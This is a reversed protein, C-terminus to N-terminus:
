HTRKGGLRLRHSKVARGALRPIIRNAAGRVAANANTTNMNVPIATMGADVIGSTTQGSSSYCWLTIPDGASVTVPVTVSITYHPYVSDTSNNNTAAGFVGDVPTDNSGTNVFCYVEDIPSVFAIATATVYYTGPTTVNATQLVKVTPGLTGPPSNPPIPAMPVRPTNGTPALEADYGDIVGAPGQQGQGGQQALLSWNANGNGPESNSNAQLAIWASGGDFVADNVNYATSASWPGQWTLGAPGTQGNQGPQGTDGKQALLGWAANTASPESNTNPQLAIWASGGDFVADNKQYSQTPSWQGQWTLGAPGIPGRRGTQNWSLSRENRRCTADDSPASTDIVRLLSGGDDAGQRNVHYCAHIVGNSDPISAVASGGVAVIGALVAIAVIVGRFAVSGSRRMPSMFHQKHRPRAGPPLSAGLAKLQQEIASHQAELAKLKAVIERTDEM